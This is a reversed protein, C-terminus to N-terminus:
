QGIGKTIVNSVLTFFWVVGISIVGFSWKLLSWLFKNIREKDAKYETIITELEQQILAIREETERHREENLERSTKKTM